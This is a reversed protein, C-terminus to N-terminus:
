REKRKHNSRIRGVIGKTGLMRQKELNAINSSVSAMGAGERGKNGTKRCKKLKADELLWTLFSGGRDGWGEGGAFRM